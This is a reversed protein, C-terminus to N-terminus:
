EDRNNGLQQEPQEEEAGELAVPVAAGQEREEAGKRENYHMSVLWPDGEVSESAGAGGGGRQVRKGYVGVDHGLKAGAQGRYWCM